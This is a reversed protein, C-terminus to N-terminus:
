IKLPELAAATPHVFYNPPVGWVKAKNVGGAAMEKHCRLYLFFLKAEHFFKLKIGLYEVYESPGM